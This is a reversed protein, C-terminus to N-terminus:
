PSVTKGVITGWTYSGVRGDTVLGFKKQYAKVAEETSKDFVYTIKVGMLLQLIGVADGQMGYKLLPLKPAPIGSPIESIETGAVGIWAAKVDCNDKKVSLHMHKDHPNIGTYPRWSGDSVAPNSIRRNWIIYSIRPDKSNRLTEALVGCNLGHDPDHTIDIAKVIGDEDPNHDSKRAGHAADGITGDSSKDRKPWRSNVQDRFVILSDALRWSM